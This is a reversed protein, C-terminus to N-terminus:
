AEKGNAFRYDATEPFLSGEECAHWYITKTFRNVKNYRMVLSYDINKQISLQIKNSIYANVNKNKHLKYLSPELWVEKEGPNDTNLLTYPAIKPM